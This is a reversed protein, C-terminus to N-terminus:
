FNFGVLWGAALAVSWAALRFSPRPAGGVKRELPGGQQPTMEPYSADVHPLNAESVGQEM